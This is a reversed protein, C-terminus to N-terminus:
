AVCCILSCMTIRQYAQKGETAHRPTIPRSLTVPTKWVPESMTLRFTTGNPFDVANTPAYSAILFAATQRGLFGPLPPMLLLLSLSLSRYM